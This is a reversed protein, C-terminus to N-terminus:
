KLLMIKHTDMSEATLMRAIYVGSALNQAEFPVTYSGPQRPENTLTTILRGTIDFIDIRVPVSEMESEPVNFHINTASNFPNPFNKLIEFRDSQVIEPYERAADVEQLLRTTLILNKNDYNEPVDPNDIQLLRHWTTEGEPDEGKFLTRVPYYRDDELDDSGRDVLFRLVADESEDVVELNIHYSKGPLLEVMEDSITVQNIGARLMSFDVEVSGLENEPIYSDMPAFERSESVSVRLTGTGTVADFDSHNLLPFEVSELMGGEEHEIRVSAAFIVSEGSAPDDPRDPVEFFFAPQGSYTVDVLELNDPSWDATYSFQRTGYTQNTVRLTNVSVLTVSRYGENLSFRDKEIRDIKVEGTKDRTIVYHIIEDPSDLDLWINQINPWHTYKASGYRLAVSEDRVWPREDSGYERGPVNVQVSAQQPLSYSYDEHGYKNLLNSVYFGTLADPFNLDLGAMDFISQYLVWPQQGGRMLTLEGIELGVQEFLYSHFLQARQYDFLVEAEGTRWRFFGEASESDVNGSVEDPENLFIMPRANFGNLIEALESQGEDIFTIHSQRDPNGHILHQFEHAITGLPRQPNVSGTGDYGYIGPYTDIYLIAAENSGSFRSRPLLDPGYFFGAIYGGDPDDEWGDQIDTLLFKVMDSGSPPTPVNDRDGRAFIDINNLIIGQDSNVSRPPTQEELAQLMTSVVEEDIKGSGYEDVDVWIQAIEGVAKLEFLVEDFSAAGVSEEPNYVNFIRTDGVEYTEPEEMVELEEPRTSTIKRYEEMAELVEPRSNIYDTIHIIKGGERHPHIDAPREIPKEGSKQVETKEEDPIPYARFDQATLGATSLLPFLMCFFMSRIVIRTRM